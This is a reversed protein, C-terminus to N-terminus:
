KKNGVYKASGFGLILEFINTFFFLGAAFGNGKGFARALAVSIKINAVISVVCMSISLVLNLGDNSVNQMVVSLVSCIISPIIFWYLFSLNSIKYLIYVNYIPILAKWGAEGAKTFIKWMAIISLIIAISCFIFMVVAFSGFVVLLANTEEATLGTTTTLGDM